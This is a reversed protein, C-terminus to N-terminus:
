LVIGIERKKIATSRRANHNQFSRSWNVCSLRIVEVITQVVRFAFCSLFSWGNPAKACVFKGRILSTQYRRFFEWDPKCLFTPNRGTNLVLLSDPIASKVCVVYAHYVSLLKRVVMTVLSLYCPEKINEGGRARFV